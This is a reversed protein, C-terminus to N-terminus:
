LYISKHPCNSSMSSMRNSDKGVTCLFFFQTGLVSLESYSSSSLIIGLLQKSGPNNALGFLINNVHLLCKLYEIWTEEEEGEIGCCKGHCEYLGLSESPPGARASPQQKTTQRGRPTRRVEDQESTPM